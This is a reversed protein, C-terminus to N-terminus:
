ELDGDFLCSDHEDVVTRSVQTVGEISTLCHTDKGGHSPPLGTQSLAIAAIERRRDVPKKCRRNESLFTDTLTTNRVINLLSLPKGSEVPAM